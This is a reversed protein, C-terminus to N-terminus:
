PYGLDSVSGWPSYMMFVLVTLSTLISVSSESLPIGFGASFIGQYYASRETSYSKKGTVVKKTYAYRRVESTILAIEENAIIRSATDGALITVSESPISDTITGRIVEASKLM